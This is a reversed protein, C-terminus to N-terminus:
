KLRYLSTDLATLTDYLEKNNDVYEVTFVNETAIDYTVTIDGSEVLLEATFNDSHIAEKFMNVFHTVEAISMPIRMTRVITESNIYDITESSKHRCHQEFESKLNVKFADEYDYVTPILPRSTLVRVNPIRLFNIGKNIAAAVRHHGDFVYLNKGFYGADVNFDMYDSKTLYEYFEVKDMSFDRIGQTPLLSSPDVYYGFKKFKIAHLVCDTVEEINRKGIFVVIDSSSLGSPDELNYMERYRKMEVLSREAQYYLVGDVSKHKETSRSANFIRSAALLPNVMLYVKISNPVFHWALRSVFVKDEAAKGLEEIHSDIQHDVSWDGSKNLALVDESFQRYLQGSDVLEMNLREALAKGVSSKGSGIDGTITIHM